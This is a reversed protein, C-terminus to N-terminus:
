ATKHISVVKPGEPRLINELLGALMRLAQGKEDRYSHRDYIGEVGGMAHGLVREAIDPRVGARSMLSRSTRRLDHLGWQPMAPLKADLQQKGYSFGTFARTQPGPFVYPNNALRPRSRIITLAMEPLLLDGGTGKERTNGNPMHWTGDVSIDNWKMLTVKRRRQATLLLLKVFDGFTGEAANWVASVEADDLIRSRATDKSSTRRMGRVVPSVYDDNRTAYWNGIARIISLAGDAAAPGANDEITDLLAAVDKRRISRFDRGGWAPMVHKYLHRSREAGTLLGKAAVHRKLWDEAVKEFSEPGSRDRGGKIALMATRAHERATDLKHLDTSGITHWVQKGNPDRAVAVFSKSGTPTVRVYHGALKPDPVAYRAAKPKLAAIMNDTLTRKPM